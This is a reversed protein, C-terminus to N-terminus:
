AAWDRDNPFAPGARDFVEDRANLAIMTGWSCLAFRCRYFLLVHM